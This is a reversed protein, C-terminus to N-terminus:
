ECWFEIEDGDGATGSTSANGCGYATYSYQGSCLNLTQTGPAIYFTYKAPGTFYMTVQGGTDNKIVISTGLECAPTATPPVAHPSRSPPIPPPPLPHPLLCLFRISSTPITSCRDPNWSWMGADTVKELFNMGSTCPTHNVSRGDMWFIVLAWPSIPFQLIRLIKYLM